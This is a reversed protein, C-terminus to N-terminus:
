LLMMQKPQGLARADLGEDRLVQALEEAFSGRASASGPSSSSSSSALGARAAVTSDVFSRVGRHSQAPSSRRVKASSTKTQEADEAVRVQGDGRLHVAVEVHLAPRRAGCLRLARVRPNRWPNRARRITPSVPNSGAVGQDRVLSFSQGPTVLPECGKTFVRIESAPGTWGDWGTRASVLSKAAVKSSRGGGIAGTAEPYPRSSVM